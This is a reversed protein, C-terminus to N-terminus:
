KWWEDYASGRELENAITAFVFGVTWGFVITLGLISLMDIVM